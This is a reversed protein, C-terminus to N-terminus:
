GTIEVRVKNEGAKLNEEANDLNLTLAESAGAAFALKGAPKEDVFLMLEGAEPTKKNAKTYAIVAKLALITSQTSGFGGYGGRQKGIWAVATHAPNLFEPRQAKLWGLVALATTEIQLMRGTSGTISMEGGDLYGDKTLAAALAKLHFMAEDTRDRNLLTNAVLAVFYWNKSQKARSVLANLEKTIDD